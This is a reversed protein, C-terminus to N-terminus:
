DEDEATEKAEQYKQWAVNFVPILRPRNIRTIINVWYRHEDSKRRKSMTLKAESEKGVLLRALDGLNDQRQHKTKLWERFKM